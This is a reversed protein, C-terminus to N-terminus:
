GITVITTGELVSDGQAVNIATVTGDFESELDNEMKMAELTAVVQGAKITDGVNVTISVIVGPLPAKVSKGTNSKPAPSTPTSVPSTVVSKLESVTPQDPTNQMEVQYSAGNVTVNAINGEVSNVAVQYEKGNIKYNYTKM